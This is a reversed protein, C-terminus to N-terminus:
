DTEEKRPIFYLTDGVWRTVVSVETKTWYDYLTNEGEREIFYWCTRSIERPVHGVITTDKM